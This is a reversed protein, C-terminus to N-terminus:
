DLHVKMRHFTNREKSEKKLKALRDKLEELEKQLQEYNKPM